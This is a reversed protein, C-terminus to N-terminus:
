VVRLSQGREALRAGPVGQGSELAERIATTNPEASKELMPKAYEWVCYQDYEKLADRIVQWMRMPLTATARRYDTPVLDPQGIELPAIGGNNQRRLKRGNTGELAKREGMVAIVNERLRAQLADYNEILSKLREIERKADAILGTQQPLPKSEDKKGIKKLLWWYSDVKAPLLEQSYERIALQTQEIAADIPECLDASDVPFYSALVAAREQMLDELQTVLDELTRDIVALSLSM